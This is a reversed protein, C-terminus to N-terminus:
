VARRRRRRAARAESQCRRRERHRVLDHGGPPRAAFLPDAVRDGVDGTLRHRGSVVAAPVSSPQAPRDPHDCGARRGAPVDDGPRRLRRRRHRRSPTRETAGAGEDNATAEPKRAESELPKAPFKQRLRPRWKSCILRLWRNGVLVIIRAMRPAYSNHHMTAEPRGKATVGFTTSAASGSNRACLLGVVLSPRYRAQRKECSSAPRNVPSM